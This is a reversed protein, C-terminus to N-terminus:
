SSVSDISFQTIPLATHHVRIEQSRSTHETDDRERDRAGARACANTRERMKAIRKRTYMRTSRSLYTRHRTCHQALDSHTAMSTSPIYIPHMCWFTRISCALCDCLTGTLQVGILQVQTILQLTCNIPLAYALNRTTSSSIIHM